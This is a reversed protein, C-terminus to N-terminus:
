ISDGGDVACELHIAAGRRGCHCTHIKARDQAEEADHKSSRIPAGVM